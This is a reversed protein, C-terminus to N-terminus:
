YYLKKLGLLERDLIAQATYRPDPAPKKSLSSRSPSDVRNAPEREVKRLADQRLAVQDQSEGTTAPALRQEDGDHLITETQTFLESSIKDVKM